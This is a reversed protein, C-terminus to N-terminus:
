RSVKKGQAEAAQDFEQETVVQGPAWGKVVRTAEFKWYDPNPRNAGHMAPLWGKQEGWHEIPAKSPAHHAARVPDRRTNEAGGDKEGDM